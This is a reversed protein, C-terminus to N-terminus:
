GGSIIKLQEGVQPIEGPKLGNLVQLTKLQNRDVKMKKALSALSDSPGVTIAKIRLPKLSDKESQSMLRFSQAIANSTTEIMPNEFPGATIFRYVQRDVQIVRIVFDWEGGRASATASPLGNISGEVISTEDIGKVWGSNLYNTLSQRKGIVAADFRTALSGPGSIVVSTSQNNIETNPTAVFTIGLGVHSFRNERVFGEDSSDGFLMGDIGKLYRAREAKVTGPANFFRAHKKALNIRAPTSPHSSLFVQSSFQPNDSSSLGQFDQMTELFRSAAHPDFGAKGLMRIGIADAQLEQDKSFDALRLQNAALAVRGAISDGLVESVVEEGVNTSSQKDRRLIAHNASVHAMEHSIVAALESFDNALALLGRTVYLYGGPLAFANVRPTDLITIKYVRGKDQSVEVLRGTIIALLKEVEKNRYEGGYKALVLPHEGKGIKEQPDNPKVWSSTLEPSSKIEDDLGDSFVCSQMVALIPLLVLWKKKKSHLKSVPMYFLM